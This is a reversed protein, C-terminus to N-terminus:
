RKKPKMPKPSRKFANLVLKTGLALWLIGFFMLPLEHKEYAGLDCAAGICVFALGWIAIGIRQIKTAKPSGKWLLADVSSSNAMADPWLTNGQKTRVDEILTDQADRHNM